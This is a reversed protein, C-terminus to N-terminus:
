YLDTYLHVDNYPRAGALETVYPNSNKEMFARSKGGHAAARLHPTSAAASKSQPTGFPWQCAQPPKEGVSPAVQFSPRAAFTGAAADEVGKSLVAYESTM